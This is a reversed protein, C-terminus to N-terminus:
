RFEGEAFYTPASGDCGRGSQHFM